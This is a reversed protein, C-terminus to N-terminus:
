NGRPHPDAAMLPGHHQAPLVVPLQSSSRLLLAAPRHLHAMAEQLLDETPTTSSIGSGGQHDGSRRGAGFKVVVEWSGQGLVAM